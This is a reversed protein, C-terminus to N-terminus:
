VGQVDRLLRDFRDQDVQIGADDLRTRLVSAVDHGNGARIDERIQDALGALKAEDTADQAGDEIPADQDM